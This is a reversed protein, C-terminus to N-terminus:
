PLLCVCVCLYLRLIVYDIPLGWVAMGSVFDEMFQVDLSMSLANILLRLQSAFGVMNGVYDGM